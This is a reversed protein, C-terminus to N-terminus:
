LAIANKLRPSRYTPSALREHLWAAASKGSVEHVGEFISMGILDPYGSSAYVSQMEAFTEDRGYAISNAVDPQGIEVL